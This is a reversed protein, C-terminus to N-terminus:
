LEPRRVEPFPCPRLSTVVELAASYPVEAVVDGDAVDDTAIM